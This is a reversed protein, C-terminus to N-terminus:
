SKLLKKRGTKTQGWTGILEGVTGDEELSYANFQKDNEYYCYKQNKYTFNIITDEEDEKDEKDTEEKVEEEKVEGKGVEVEETEPKEIVEESKEIVEEPKEIVEEPKEIVEKEVKEVKQAKKQKKGKKEKETKTILKDTDDKDYIFNPNVENTEENIEKNIKEEVINIVNEIKTSERKVSKNGKKTLKLSVILRNLREIERDKHLLEDSLKQVMTFKDEEEKEKQLDEYKCQIDNLLQNNEFLQKKLKQNESELENYKNVHENNNREQERIIDNLRRLEM